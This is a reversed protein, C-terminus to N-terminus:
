ARRDRDHHSRGATRVRLAKAPPLRQKKCERAHPMANVEVIQKLLSSIVFAANLRLDDVSHTPQQWYPRCCGRRMAELSLVCWGGRKQKQVLPWHTNKLAGYTPPCSM